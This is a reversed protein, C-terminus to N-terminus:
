SSEDTDLVYNATQYGDEILQRITARSFDYALSPPNEPTTERMIRTFTTRAARGMLQQYLPESRFLNAQEQPMAELLQKILRQHDQILDQQRHNSRLRESFLIEDRRSFVDTMNKPLHERHGTFLDVLYIQKGTSGVRELVIDLPSNSIIGADWYHRDDITTWPFAPPLSGSALIHDATLNETYSDFLVIESTQVDIATVLLRIPGNRLAPFDVYKELLEKADSFDYLGTWTDPPGARLLMALMWRPTFFGPVGFMAIQNTAMLRRSSEDPSEVAVASIDHWFSDLAEAAHEKASAIIAANFAGISVGAVLDPIIGHEQLARVAGCEFAGYAGGGQLIFAVQGPIESLKFSAKRLSTLHKALPVRDRILMSAARANEGARGLAFFGQCIDDKLYLTEFQNNKRNERDITKADAQTLGLVNFSQDFVHSYFYSIHSYPDNIRSMNRAACQAQNIANDWHETRIYQQFVPHWANAVDGAAFIDPDNTQLFKDVLVGNELTIGSSQLWDIAPTVGTGMVVLDCQIKEGTDTVVTTVKKEGELRVPRVDLRLDIKQSRLIAEFHRSIAPHNLKCLLDNREILTVSLGMQKLTGAIEMGIFGAGIVVAHRDSKCHDVIKIADDFTRLTHVGALNAGPVDARMARSGTAILLRDYHLQTVKNKQKLSITKKARDLATVQTGRLLEINLTEYETSPMVPSRPATMALGMGLKSLAPRHYPYHSEQGILMITAKPNLQRLTQAATAGATGAGVIVFDSHPLSHTDKM